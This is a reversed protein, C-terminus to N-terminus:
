GHRRGGKAATGLGSLQEAPTVGALTQVQTWLEAAELGLNDDLEPGTRGKTLANVYALKHSLRAALVPGMESLASAAAANLSKWQATVDCLVFAFPIKHLQCIEVISDMTGVDLISPRAPIVVADALAVCAEVIATDDLGPPTDVFLFDYGNHALIRADRALNEVAIVDPGPEEGRSVHWQGINGQEANLDFVAVKRGLKFAKVALLLTITTKGSGGKPAAITVTRM